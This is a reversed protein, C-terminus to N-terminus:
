FLAARGLSRVLNILIPVDAMTLPATRVILRVNEAHAPDHWVTVEDLWPGLRTQLESLGHRVGTTNDGRSAYEGAIFDMNHLTWLGSGPELGLATAPTGHRLWILEQRPPTPLTARILLFERRAVTAPFLWAWPNLPQRIRHEVTVRDFPEPPPQIDALFGRRGPGHSAQPVGRASDNLAALLRRSRQGAQVQDLVFGTAYLLAAAVPLLIPLFAALREM